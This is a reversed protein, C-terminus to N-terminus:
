GIKFWKDPIVNGAEGVNPSGHGVVINVNPSRNIAVSFIGHYTKMIGNRHDNIPKEAAEFTDM